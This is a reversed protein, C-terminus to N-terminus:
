PLIQAFHYYRLLITIDSCFPLIRAFHYYRLLITIDSCFPLIRAFHYYGLLITIDSCFPLIQAFHYYRLLITIDSCFPLIQAFHYYRLLITTDSCFPLIQAFHYYGLLIPEWYWSRVPFWNPFNRRFFERAAGSTRQSIAAAMAIVVFISGLSQSIPCDQNRAETSRPRHCTGERPGGRQPM